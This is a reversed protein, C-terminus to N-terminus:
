KGSNMKAKKMMKSCDDKGMNKQCQEMMQGDCMKGDNHMKMCEGMMVHMHQMDMKGAMMEHNMMGEPKKEATQETTHHEQAPQDEAQASFAFGAVLAITVLTVKMSTEKKNARCYNGPM